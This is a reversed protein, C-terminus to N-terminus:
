THPSVVSSQAKPMTEGKGFTESLEEFYAKSMVHTARLQLWDNSMSFVGGVVEEVKFTDDVTDVDNDLTVSVLLSFIGNERAGYDFSSM